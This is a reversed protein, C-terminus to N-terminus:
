SILIQDIATKLKPLDKKYAEWVSEPIIGFYEHILVNRMDIMDRWPIEPHSDCFERSIKNSAEGIIEFEHVVGSLVLKNKSFSEFDSNGIFENINNISDQIHGIFVLDNKM